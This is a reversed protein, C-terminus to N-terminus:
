NNEILTWPMPPEQDLPLIASYGILSEVTHDMQQNILKIKSCLEDEKRSIKGGKKGSCIKQLHTGRFWISEMMHETANFTRGKKNSKYNLPVKIDLNDNSALLSRDKRKKTVYDELGWRKVLDKIWRVSDEVQIISEHRVYEVNPAWQSINIFNLIKITRCKILSGCTTYARSKNVSNIWTRPSNDNFNLRSFFQEFPMESLEKYRSGCWCKEHM